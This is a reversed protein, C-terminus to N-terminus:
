IKLLPKDIVDAVQLALTTKGVQRPGLLVQLHTRPEQLREVLTQFVARKKM